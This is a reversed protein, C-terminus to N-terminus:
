HVVLFYNHTIQIHTRIHTFVKEQVKDCIFFIFHQRAFASLSTLQLHRPPSSSPSVTFADDTSARLELPSKHQVAWEQMYACLDCALFGRRKM